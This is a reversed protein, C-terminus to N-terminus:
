NGSCLFFSPNEFSIVNLRYILKPLISMKIISLKRIQSYPKDRLKNTKKLKEGNHKKTKQTSAKWM